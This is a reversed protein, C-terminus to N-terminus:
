CLREVTFHFGFVRRGSPCQPLRMISQQLPSVPKASAHCLYEACPPGYGRLDSFCLFALSAHDDVKHKATLYHTVCSIVLRVGFLPLGLSGSLM